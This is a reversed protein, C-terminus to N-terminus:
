EEPSSWMRGSALIAETVRECCRGDRDGFAEAIRAAYEPSPTPGRDLSAVTETIAEDLTSVVPGFGDRPYKFYGGRGVHEGGFMRDADFQFYVVPRDIYAANFAVSSYDTVMVAARAFYEQVDHGAYHLALVHEPLDLGSLMPQLNPHPLFGVSVRHRDCAERLKDSRLFGLWQTMFESRLLDDAAERRQSGEKMPAVLWQRWTPVVLVLDRREAPFREAVERLRDFRPLGTLVTEKGTFVYSTHDGAVSEYEARTSTVFVEIPKRNLWVSLDDKIVGHQLFTFRWQPDPFNALAPPEVIPEDAHSSIFQDCNLMLLKWRLSGMAVVRRRHGQKRMRHWDPTGREIVFWANIEPRNARLYEFLREGNDDANHVRDMLVWADRFRRRVPASRALRLVRQEARTLEPRAQYPAEGRERAAAARVRGTRLTRPRKIRETQVPVDRGDLQIRISKNSPFWLMRERMLVRGHYSRDRIKAYVPEAPRGGCLFREAPLAGTYLYSIRVLGRREDIASLLADGSHWPEPRYGHQLVARWVQSLPRTTGLGLVHPHLLATIQAMLEHFREAVEGTASSGLGTISEEGSLYWSLEYIVFSQLWEPPEDQQRLLALYGHELVDTYRRPDGRGSQLTSTGDARQRYVYRTSRVFGVLPEDVALLYRCCFHGDEFNPRVRDDFRLEQAVLVDHRFFAAPASGFFFDAEHRLDRLQDGERFHGRLPHTDTIEGSAGDLMVRRVGVLRVSPYMDIFRGVRKLYNPAVLDDPDIFTVWEGRAHELGLNRASGQGGNAKTLVRVRIQSAQEWARLRALSDDTSGDDVTIVEFSAKDVNQRELASIFDDLYRGVNYVASIITFRPSLDLPVSGDQRLGPISWSEALHEGETNKM